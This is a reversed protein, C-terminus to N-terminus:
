VTTTAFVVGGVITTFWGYVPNSSRAYIITATLFDM